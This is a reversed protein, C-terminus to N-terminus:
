QQQQQQHANKEKLGGSSSFLKINLKTSTIKHTYWLSFLSPLFLPEPKKKQPIRQRHRLHADRRREIATWVIGRVHNHYQDNCNHYGLRHMNLWILLEIPYSVQYM